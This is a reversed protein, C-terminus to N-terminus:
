IQGRGRGRDRWNPRSRLRSRLTRAQAEVEAELLQGCKCGSLKYHRLLLDGYLYRNAVVVVAQSWSYPAYLDRGSPSFPTVLHLVSVSAQWNLILSVLSSQSCVSLRVSPCVAQTVRSDVLRRRQEENREMTSTQGDVPTWVDTCPRLNIAGVLALRGNNGVHGM